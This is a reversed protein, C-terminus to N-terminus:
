SKKRKRKMGKLYKEPVIFGTFPGDLYSAASRLLEPDRHRGILNRNCTYCLLGRVEGTTHDHDVNLYKVFEEQHKKCIWCRGGFKELLANYQELTIGYHRKLYARRRIVEAEVPNQRKWNAVALQQTKKNERKSLYKKNYEKQKARAKEKNKYPM